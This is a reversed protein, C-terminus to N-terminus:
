TAILGAAVGVVFTRALGQRVEPSSRLFSVVVAALGAAWVVMLLTPLGIGRLIHLVLAAGNSLLAIGVVLYAPDWRRRRQDAVGAVRGQSSRDPRGPRSGRVSDHRVGP